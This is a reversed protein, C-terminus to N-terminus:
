FLTLEGEDPKIRKIERREGGSREYGGTM